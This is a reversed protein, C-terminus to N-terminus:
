MLAHPPKPELMELRLELYLPKLQELPLHNKLADELAAAPTGMEKFGLTLATGRLRHVSQCLAELNVGEQATNWDNEIESLREPVKSLFEDQLKKFELQLLAEFDVMPENQTENNHSM